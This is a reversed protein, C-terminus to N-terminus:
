MCLDFRQLLYVSVFISIDPQVSVGPSSSVATAAREIGRANSLLVRRSDSEECPAFIPCLNKVTASGHAVTGHQVTPVTIASYARYHCPLCPLPVTPVTPVTIARYARYHCLLVTHVSNSVIVDQLEWSSHPIQPVGIQTFSNLPSM